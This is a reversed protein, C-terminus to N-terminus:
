WTSVCVTPEEKNELGRWISHDVQWITGFISNQELIIIARNNSMSWGKGGIPM